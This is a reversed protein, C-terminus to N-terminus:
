QDRVPIRVSRHDVQESSTTIQVTITYDINAVGGALRWLVKGNATSANTVTLAGDPSTIEVASITEGDELWASWDMEYDLAAAPDKMPASFTYTM